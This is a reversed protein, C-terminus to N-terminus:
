NSNKLYFQHEFRYKQQVNPYKKTDVESMFMTLPRAYISYSGYLAEYIVLREGTETHRAIAIIKYFKNKFHKWVEGSRPSKRKM